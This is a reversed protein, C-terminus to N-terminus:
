IKIIKERFRGIHKGKVYKDIREVHIVIDVSDTEGSSSGEDKNKYITQM